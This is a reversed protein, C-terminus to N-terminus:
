PFTYGRAGQADCCPEGRRRSRAADVDRAVDHRCRAAIGVFGFFWQWNPMEDVDSLEHVVGLIRSSLKQSPAGSAGRLM